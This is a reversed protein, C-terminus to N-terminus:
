NEPGGFFGLSLLLGGGRHKLMNNLEENTGRGM